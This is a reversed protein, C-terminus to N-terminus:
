RLHLHLLPLIMAVSDPVFSETALLEALAAADVWRTEVVEGDDFSFPGDHVVSYCQGFSAVDADVFKGGGIRALVGSVGMEECLERAAAGEYSEGAGVVGGVALDWRGGWLDKADSRRHVLLRGDSGLVAIGVSRHLLREGRMQRRTVTAIVRDDDDVVDVLEDGPGGETTGIQGSM